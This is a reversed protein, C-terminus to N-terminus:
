SIGTAATTTRSSSAATPAPRAAAQSETPDIWLAHHDGFMRGGTGGFTRGGDTSMNFSGSMTYVRNPDVPDVRVQTYYFPRNNIRRESNVIRWTSAM